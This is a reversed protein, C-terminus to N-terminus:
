APRPTPLPLAGRLPTLLLRRGGCGARAIETFSADPNSESSSKSGEGEEASNLRGAVWLPDLPILRREKIGPPRLRGGM